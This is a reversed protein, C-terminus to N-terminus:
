QPVRSPAVVGVKTLIDSLFNLLFLDDEIDAPPREGGLFRFAKRFDTKSARINNEFHAPIIRQIPWQSVTDVWEAVREPERDLILKQLIPAVLLGNQLAKFNKSENIVWTWPYLAGSFPLSGKGLMKATDSAKGLAGFAEPVSSVQIGSPFFFLGFLAMRRWGRRRAEDTDEVDDLAADRSHYLIARPDEQLIPPAENPVKVITDTVILTKSARHFLATEGFAGVSKFRLPGLVATEFDNSWPAEASNEPMDNLKSGFPFGFLWSPLNVPFSWQGPQLWVEAGPFCRTFPGCLAKHELGLSGLLIHKVPGHKSELEKVYELCEITPAVPNYILLGGEKLRVVVSRVPVNVNVVGQVQDLTWMSNPVIEDLITVRRNGPALPLLSFAVSGLGWEYRRDGDPVSIERKVPAPASVKPKVLNEFFANCLHVICAHCLLCM